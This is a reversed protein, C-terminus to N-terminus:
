AVLAGVIRRAAALTEPIEEPKWTGERRFVAVSGRRVQICWGPRDVLLGRIPHLASRIAGEDRGRLLYQRSFGEDEPFDIDQYGFIQGIRSLVSEPALDFEPLTPGAEPFVAVTYRHVHQSKGGGTTFRYDFLRVPAGDLIGSWANTVKRSHGRDMLPFLPDPEPSSTPGTAPLFGLSRAAQEFAEARKREFRRQLYIAIPVMAVLLLLLYTIPQDM